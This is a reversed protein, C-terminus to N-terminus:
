GPRLRAGAIGPDWYPVRVRLPPRRPSEPAADAAHTGDPCPVQRTAKLRTAAARVDDLKLSSPVHARLVSPSPQPDGVAPPREAGDCFAFPGDRPGAAVWPILGRPHM